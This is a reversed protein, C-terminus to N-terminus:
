VGIAERIKAFLGAGGKGLRQREVRTLGVRQAQEIEQTFEDEPEVLAEEDVRVRRELAKQREDPVEPVTRPRSRKRLNREIVALDEEIRAPKIVNEAKWPVSGRKAGWVKDPKVEDGRQQQKVKKKDVQQMLRNIEETTPHRNTDESM